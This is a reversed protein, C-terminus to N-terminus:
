RARIVFFHYGIHEELPATTSSFSSFVASSAKIEIYFRPNNPPSLLFSYSQPQENDQVSKQRLFDQSSIDHSKM